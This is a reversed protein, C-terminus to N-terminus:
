PFVGQVAEKVEAVWDKWSGIEPSYFTKTGRIRAHEGGTSPVLQTLEEKAAEVDEAESEVLWFTNEDSNVLEFSDPPGRPPYSALNWYAEGSENITFEITYDGDPCRVNFRAVNHRHDGFVIRLNELIKDTM